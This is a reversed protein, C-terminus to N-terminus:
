PSRCRLHAGPDYGIRGAAQQHGNEPTIGTQVGVIIHVAPLVKRRLESPAWHGNAHKILHWAFEGASLASGAAFGDVIRVPRTPYSESRATRWAAPVAAAAGAFCPFTRRHFNM